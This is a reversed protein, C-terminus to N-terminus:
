ESEGLPWCTRVYIPKEPVDGCKICQEREPNSVLRVPEQDPKVRFWCADCLCVNFWLQKM